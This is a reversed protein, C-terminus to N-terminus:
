ERPWVPYECPVPQEESTAGPRSLHPRRGTPGVGRLSRLPALNEWKPSQM